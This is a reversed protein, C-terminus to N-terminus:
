VHARGIEGPGTIVHNIIKVYSTFPRVTIRPPLGARAAPKVTFTVANDNVTLASVAAGYYFQLDEWSWSAGLGETAFYSDDGIVNGQIVKIGRAQLQDALKELATIKDAATFEDMPNPKGEANMDFRASLNPDGRGYLIVNGKLTNRKIKGAAYVSTKFKFDPGLADLTAATTYLKMNSAPVFVKDADREFIPRGATNIIRIGWRAHAFKSQELLATIRAQLEALSSPKTEAQPVATTQQALLQLPHLLVTLLLLQVGIKRAINRNVPIM